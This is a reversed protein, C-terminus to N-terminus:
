KAKLQNLKMETNLYLELHIKSIKNKINFRLISRIDRVIVADIPLAILSGIPLLIIRM